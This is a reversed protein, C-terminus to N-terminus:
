TSSGAPRSARPAYLNAAYARDEAVSSDAVEVVLAVDEPGPHHEDYDDIAGRAICRDPEPVSQQAPLRVPKGTRLHWGDPIIRLLERGCREDVVAHPPNHTMKDVLYGNILHFKRRGQFAGSAVMAEFEEVTMRHLPTPIWAPTAPVPPMASIITSM